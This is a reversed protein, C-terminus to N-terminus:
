AEARASEGVNRFWMRAAEDVSPGFYQLRRAEHATKTDKMARLVVRLPIRQEYWRRALAVEVSDFGQTEPRRSVRFFEGEIERAYQGWVPLAENPAQDQSPSPTRLVSGSPQDPPQPDPQDKPQDPQDPRFRGAERPAAAARAKGKESQRESLETTKASVEDHTENRYGRPTREFRGLIVERQRQWAVPDGSIKSLAFDDLPLFGDRLWLEDLLNRYLGQQEANMDTYATSKRWRDIWWWGARRKSM